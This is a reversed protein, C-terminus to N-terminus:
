GPTLLCIPAGWDEGVVGPPDGPEKQRDQEGGWAMSALRGGLM